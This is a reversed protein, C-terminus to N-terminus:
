DIAVYFAVKNKQTGTCNYFAYENVMNDFTKDNNLEDMLKHSLTIYIPCYDNFPRINVPCLVVDIYNNFANRAQRKDVRKYNIGDRNKFTYNNM